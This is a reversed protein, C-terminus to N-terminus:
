CLKRGEGGPELVMLRPLDRNGLPRSVKASPQYVLSGGRRGSSRAIKALEGLRGASEDPPKAGGGVCDGGKGPSGTNDGRGKGLAVEGCSEVGSGRTPGASTVVV